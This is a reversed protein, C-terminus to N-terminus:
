VSIWVALIRFSFKGCFKKRFVTNNFSIMKYKEFLSKGTNNEFVCKDVTVNSNVLFNKFNVFELNSLTINYGNMNLFQKGEGNIM